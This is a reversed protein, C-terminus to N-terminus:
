GKIIGRKSLEIFDTIVKVEGPLDANEKLKRVADGFNLGSYYIIDYAEKINKIHADTFGRRKLGVVNIGEFRIPERGALIYPPIDKVVRFGGGVMAHMGIKSFQHIAV